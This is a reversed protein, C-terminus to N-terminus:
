QEELVKSDWYSLHSKSILLTVKKPSMKVKMEIDKEQLKRFVRGDTYIELPSVRGKTCITVSVNDKLIIPALGRPKWPAKPTIV